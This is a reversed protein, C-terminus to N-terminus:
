RGPRDRDVQAAELELRARGVIPIRHAAHLVEVMRATLSIPLVHIAAETTLVLKWCARCTLERILGRHRIRPVALAPRTLVRLPTECITDVKLAAKAAASPKSGQGVVMVVVTDRVTVPPVVVDKLDVVKAKPLQTRSVGAISMDEGDSPIDEAAEGKSEDANEESAITTAVSALM